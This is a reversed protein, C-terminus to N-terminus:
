QEKIDSYRSIEITPGLVLVSGAVARVSEAKSGGALWGSAADYISYKCCVCGRHLFLCDGTCSFAARTCSFAGGTCSFAGGTCSFAVGTCSFAAGTCCFSDLYSDLYSELYSFDSFLTPPAPLM